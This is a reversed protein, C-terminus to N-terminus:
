PHGGGVDGGVLGQAVLLQGGQGAHTPEGGGDDHFADDLLAGVGKCRGGRARLGLASSPAPRRAAGPRPSRAAAATERRWGAGAPHVGAPGPRCRSRRGHGPCPRRPVRGPRAPRAPRSCGSARRGRRRCRSSCAVPAPMAALAGVRRGHGSAVRAAALGLVEVLRDAGVGGVLREVVALDEPQAVGVPLDDAGGPV